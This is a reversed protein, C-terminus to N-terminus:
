GDRRVFTLDISGHEDRRTLVLGHGQLLEVLRKGQASEDSMEIHLERVEPRSLTREGGALVDAKLGPVDIKIYNPVPLGYKEVLEDMSVIFSAQKSSYPQHEKGKFSFSKAPAFQSVELTSLAQGRGLGVPVCQVHDEMRNAECNAALLFFNVAAPEFAVVRIPERLAAYLTYVGINAGIDWFVSNPRFRDIWEITAPQKTLMRVSRGGSTTGLTVYSVAGRPTDMKVVDDILLQALKGQLKARVAEPLQHLASSLLEFQRKIDRVQEQQDEQLENPDAM